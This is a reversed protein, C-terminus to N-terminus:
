AWTGKTDAVLKLMRFYSGAHLTPAAGPAVSFTFQPIFTGAANIRVRGRVWVLKGAITSAGNITTNAATNIFVTNQTTGAVNVANAGCMAGYMMGTLTATGGFSMGLSHSTAGNTMMLAGDFLYTTAAEVTVGGATPFWPQVTIINQGTADAALVKYLEGGINSLSLLPELAVMDVYASVNAPSSADKQWKVNLNGSPAAPTADDFDADTVAAGNITVNDGGASPPAAFTGDARLFNTTGGGSAPALGKATSTFTDLLATAQTGTLDEPDGIGATARGKIRATAMDALETNTVDNAQLPFIKIGTWRAPNFDYKTASAGVHTNGVVTGGNLVPGTANLFKIDSTGAGLTRFQNGSIVPTFNTDSLGDDFDGNLLLGVGNNADFQNGMILYAQNSNSSKAVTLGAGSASSRDFRNGIVKVLGSGRLRAGLGGAYAGGIFISDSVDM